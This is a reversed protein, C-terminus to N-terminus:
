FTNSEPDQPRAIIGVHCAENPVALRPQGDSRCMQTAAIGASHINQVQVHHHGHIIPVIMM